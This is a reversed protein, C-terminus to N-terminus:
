RSAAIGEGRTPRRWVLLDRLHRERQTDIAVEASMGARLMLGERPPDIAIRVPIRQTVKVWNGTANQAPIVSFEAGTAQGISAVTGTLEDDPYTDIHVTVRQGPQVHTLDTEKYNAEIWMNRDAVISMVAAGPAVYRGSLPVKSAVGSFPARVVTHKVDLAATDRAAQMALYGAHHTVPGNPDGGLQLRIQELSQEIIRTQQRAVDYDHRAEDVDAELGLKRENLAVERALERETYAVNTRALDLEALKQAYSVRQGELMAAVAQLQAEARSLVVRYGVDDIVFLTDGAAVRQNEEVRVETIIGAVEPSVVIMDAKVYANDTEVYRGTSVYAYLSAAVVLAPGLILLTRRLWNRRRPAQESQHPDVAAKPSEEAM